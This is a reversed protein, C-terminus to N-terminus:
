LHGEALEGGQLVLSLRDALGHGNDAEETALKTKGALILPSLGLHLLDDVRDRVEKGTLKM